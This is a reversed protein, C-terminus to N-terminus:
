KGSRAALGSEDCIRISGRELSVLGQSEFSELIRSVVERSTGLESALAAHTITVTNGQKPAGILYEVLREDLRLFTVEKVLGIVDALRSSVLSLVYSRWVAYRDFWGQLSAAPVLFVETETETRAFAPFELENLICSATLICSEGREIRYLTIERGSEGMTYVRAAGSLVLPLHECHDGEMRIFQRPPLERAVGSALLESWLDEGAENLTPVAAGLKARLKETM